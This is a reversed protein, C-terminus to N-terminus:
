QDWYAKKTVWKIVWLYTLWSSYQNLKLIKSICLDVAVAFMFWKIEKLWFTGMWSKNSLMMAFIACILCFCQIKWNRSSGAVYKFIRDQSTQNHFIIKLYIFGIATALIGFVHRNILAFKPLAFIIAVEHSSVTSGIVVNSISM